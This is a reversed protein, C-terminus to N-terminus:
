KIKSKYIDLQKIVLPLKDKFLAEFEEFKIVAEEWTKEDITQELTQMLTTMKSLGVMSFTPKIKHVLRALDDKEEDEIVRRISEIEQPTVELFTEFMEIAYEFDEGYTEELVRSDLDVSESKIQMNQALLTVNPLYKNLMSSLQGPTFPKALYDNMGFDMAKQKKSLLASATLAIIPTEINKNEKNRIFESAEYGSVLPMQIDMLILSYKKKKSMDIGEQGNQAVEYPINWKALIKTIYKQNMINDEVILLPDIDSKLVLQYQKQEEVNLNLESNEFSLDFWFKTGKDIESEVNINGGLLKILKKTIALGLGSGGFKRTIDSSAQKFDEFIIKIKEQSIGIGSDEISFRILTSKTTKELITVVIKIFGKETFKGANGILNLLIQNILLEDGILMKDIGSDISFTLDIEKDSLKALFTRELLHLLQVLNFPNSQVEIMGTDIKTLDLIDSILALLVKSSNHLIDLYENQETDLHTEKLLHAMGVIANLPTRIEHSMNSLFNQEAKQAQVALMKARQLNARMKKQETIDYHVGISGAIKGTENYFPAGSVLVWIITGDKKKIQIEYASVKGVDKEAKNKEIVDIYEPLLFVDKPDKGKLEEESFGVLQCFRPYANSIIGNTDVELIGLEMNELISRYKQESKTLQETRAIIKEELSENLLSLQRNSEYLELAKKELIQEAQIRSARERAIRRKLLDIESM